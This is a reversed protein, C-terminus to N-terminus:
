NKFFKIEPVLELLQWRIKKGGWNKVVNFYILGKYMAIVAELFFDDSGPPNCAHASLVNLMKIM